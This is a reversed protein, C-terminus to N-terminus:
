LLPSLLRALRDGVRHALPRRAWVEAQIRESQRLDEAFATAMKAGVERDLVVLNCEGNFTFSRFDLNTSGVMSVYGDAVLSKAHLVAPQYEHIEVGQALLAGFFGHGAHRVLPVDTRGPLLLAVRVGRKAARGLVDIAIRKPAFYANTVLVSQRAAAVIAAFVAASEAHGRNPRSDLVLISSGDCQTPPSLPPIELPSGGAQHWCEAFVVALEWAVPGQARVHSDRWPGEVDHRRSSGYEDAINMGGTFALERDVVLIKRHDRFPHHLFHSLLPHFFRVEIGSAVLRQWFAGRTTASGVADVVVKVCVGRASARELAAGVGQGTKDDQFIYSELLIERQAEDLARHMAAFAEAGRVFIEVQNGAYPRRGDIKGLLEEFGPDFLGDHLTGAIKHVRRARYRMPLRRGPWPSVRPLWRHSPPPKAAPAFPNPLAPLLFTRPAITCAGLAQRSFPRPELRECGRRRRAGM